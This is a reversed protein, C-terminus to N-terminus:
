RGQVSRKARSEMPAIDCPEPAAAILTETLMAAASVLMLILSREQGAQLDAARVVLSLSAMLGLSPAVVPAALGMLGADIEGSTVAYGRKRIDALEARFQPLPPESRPLLAALRRPPLHALIVKSTAGRTLPMPRGREYSSRFGAERGVEDAICMVTGNYLRCLLGVCSIRAQAVCDHLVPRGRQILPDTLRTLRDFEVFAAGLRYCADPGAELLGAAILERVARYITSPPSALSDAMAKITWDPREVSYLRLISTFRDLGAM